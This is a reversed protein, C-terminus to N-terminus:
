KRRDREDMPFKLGTIEALRQPTLEENEKKTLFAPIWLPAVAIVPATGNWDIRPTQAEADQPKSEQAGTKPGRLIIYREPERIAPTPAPASHLIISASKGPRSDGTEKEGALTV